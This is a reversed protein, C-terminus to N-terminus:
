NSLHWKLTALFHTLNSPRIISHVLIWPEFRYLQLTRSQLTCRESRMHPWEGRGRSLTNFHGSYFEPSYFEEKFIRARNTDYRSSSLIMDPYKPNTTIQTVWGNHGRLTGRLQLTEAMNRQDETVTLYRYTLLYSASCNCLSFYATTWSSESGILSFTTSPDLILNMQIQFM